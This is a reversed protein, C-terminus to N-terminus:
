VSWAPHFAAVYEKLHAPSDRQPDVSVFIPVVQDALDGLKDMAEAVTALTTPCVDPCFTYGFSIVRIKGAYTEDNVTRGDQDQLVFRGSIRPAAEQAAVPAAPIALVMPSLAAALAAVTFLRLIM